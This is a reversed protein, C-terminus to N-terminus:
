NSDENIWSDNSRNSRSDNCKSNGISKVNEMEGKVKEIVELAKAGEFYDKLIVEICRELM